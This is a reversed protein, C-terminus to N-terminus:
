SVMEDLTEVLNQRDFPKTIFDAAGMRIADKLYSTQDVASVMLVKADPDEEIIGQLGHLGNYEPMVIDMTVADPQLERYKEIAEEGNGAEGVIIWGAPTVTDKIMTRIILADDTILLTKAM